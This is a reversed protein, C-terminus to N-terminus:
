EYNGSQGLVFNYINILKKEEVTWNYKEQVAKRGSKGMQQSEQDHEMIYKVAKAIEAPQLPNVCIGCRNNEVFERWLQFDSTIIPISASMYEFM